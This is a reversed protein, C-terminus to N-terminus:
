QAERTVADEIRGIDLGRTAVLLSGRTGYVRVYPLGDLGFERAALRAAPSEWNVINIKRVLM